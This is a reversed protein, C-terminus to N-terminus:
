QFLKLHLTYFETAKKKSYECLQTVMIILKIIYKDGWFSVGPRETIASEENGDLERM